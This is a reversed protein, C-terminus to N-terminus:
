RRLLDNIAHEIIATDADNLGEGAVHGWPSELVRLEAKSIRSVEQAADEVPFYLDSSSPMIITDAKISGLAKTLDGQYKENASIDAHQGTWLHALVDNADRKLFWGEWFDILFDELSAYGLARQDLRERFFAQSFGWAAYIRAAVCLGRQPQQLYFGDRFDADLEIAARVSDFFLHFHRSTRAASQFTFLREIMDPFASAWEFAQAGGM